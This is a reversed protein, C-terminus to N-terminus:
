NNVICRIFAASNFGSTGTGGSNNIAEASQVIVSYGGVRDLNIEFEDLRIQNGTAAASALAKIVITEAVTSDLTTSALTVDTDTVTGAITYSLYGDAIITGSSTITRVTLFIDFLVYDAAVLALATSDALTVPTSGIYIRVRQTAAAAVAVCVAKARIHLRDGVQLFNAPITYSGNSFATESATNTIVTSAATIEYLPSTPAAILTGDGANMLGVQAGVNQGNQLLCLFMDGSALRYFPAASGSPLKQTIDGGRLADEIAIMLPGKAGAVSQAQVGGDSNQQLMQGPWCDADAIAEDYRSHQSILVIRNPTFGM